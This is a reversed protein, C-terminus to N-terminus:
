SNLNYLNSLGNFLQPDISNLQNYGIELKTLNLGKFTLPDISSIRKMNLDISANDKSIFNSFQEFLIQQNIIYFKSTELEIITIIVFFLLIKM